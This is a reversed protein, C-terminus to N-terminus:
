YQLIVAIEAENGKVYDVIAVTDNFPKFRRVEEPDVAYNLFFGFFDRHSRKLFELALRSKRRRGARYCGVM